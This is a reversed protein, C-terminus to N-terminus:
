SPFGVGQEEGLKGLAEVVSIHLPIGNVSRDAFAAHEKDGPVLVREEGLPPCAHLDRAMQDVMAKFDGLPRFADVRLAGFFHGASASGRERGLMSSYGIGTLVGCLVDVMVGLGYGKHSSLVPTSGLPTLMGGKGLIHADVTPGGDQDVAWGEPIPKGERMAIELKGGAVTTTAIDLILPPEDGAPVGVAIPNTGLMRKAGFTPPALPGANTFAFGILGRRAAEYVYYGAAGFHSSSTVAVFGCGRQRAKELALRNAKVSVVTGMGRDADILATTDTQSLTRLNPRPNIVGKRLGPAYSPHWDLHAVGHSDIGHLDAYLLVDASLAADDRPVGFTVLLDIVWRRLLAEQVRVFEAM